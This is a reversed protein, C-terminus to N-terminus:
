QSRPGAYGPRKLAELPDVAERGSFYQFLRGLIGPQNEQPAMQPVNQPAPAQERRRRATLLKFLQVDEPSMQSRDSFYPQQVMALREDVPMDRYAQPDKRALAALSPYPQGGAPM